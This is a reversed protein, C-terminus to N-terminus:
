AVIRRFLHLLELGDCRKVRHLGRVTQEFAFDFGVYQGISAVMADSRESIAGKAASQQATRHTRIPSKRVVVQTLGRIWFKLLRLEALIQLGRLFQILESAIPKTLAHNM